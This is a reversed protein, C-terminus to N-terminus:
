QTFIIFHVKFQVTVTKADVRGKENKMKFVHRHEKVKDLNKTSQKNMKNNNNNNTKCKKALKEDFGYLKKILKYKNQRTGEQTM